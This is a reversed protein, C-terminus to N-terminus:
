LSEGGRAEERGVGFGRGLGWAGPEDEVAETRQRRMVAAM